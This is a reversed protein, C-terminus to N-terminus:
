SVRWPQDVLEGPLSIDDTIARVTAGSHGPDQCDKDVEARQQMLGRIESAMRRQYRVAREIRETVKKMSCVTQKVKGLADVAFDGEIPTSETPSPSQTVAHVIVASAEQLRSMLVQVKTATERSIGALRRVEEAAKALADDQDGLRIAEIAVSSALLDAETASDQLSRMMQSIVHAELELDDVVDIADAAVQNSAEAKNEQGTSLFDNNSLSCQGNFQSKGLVSATSASMESSLDDVHRDIPQQDEEREGQADDCTSLQVDDTASTITRDLAKDVAERTETEIRHIAAVLKGSTLCPDGHILSKPAAHRAARLSRFLFACLWISVAAVFLIAVIAIMINSAHFQIMAAATLSAVICPVVVLKSRAILSRDAAKPDDSGASISGHHRDACARFDALRASSEDVRLGSGVSASFIRKGSLISYNNKM